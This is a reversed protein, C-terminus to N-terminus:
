YKEIKRNTSGNQVQVMRRIPGGGNSLESSSSEIDVFLMKNQSQIALLKKELLYRVPFSTDVYM